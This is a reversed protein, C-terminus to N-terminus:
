ILFHEIKDAFYSGIKKVKEMVIRVSESDLYWNNKAIGRKDTVLAVLFEVELPFSYKYTLLARRAHFAKCVLIARKISIDKETLVDYSYRANEFTNTAQDEKLIAEEPVGLSVGIDRLFQWESDHNLLNPNGAGSPLIFPAFGRKYLRVAEQM